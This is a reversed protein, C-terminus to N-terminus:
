AVVGMLVHRPVRRARRMRALNRASWGSAAPPASPGVARASCASATSPSSFPGVGERGTASRRGIPRSRQPPEPFARAGRRSAPRESLAGSRPPACRCRPNRPASVARLRARLLGPRSPGDSAPRAPTGLAVALPCARPSPDPAPRSCRNRCPGLDSGADRRAIGTSHESRRRRWTLRPPEVGADACIAGVLASAWAPPTMPGPAPPSRSGAAM